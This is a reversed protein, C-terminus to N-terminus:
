FKGPPSGFGRFPGERQEWRRRRVMTDIESDPDFAEDDSEPYAEEFAAPEEDIPPADDAATDLEALEEAPPEQADWSPWDGSPSCAM